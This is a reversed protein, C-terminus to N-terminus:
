SNGNQDIPILDFASKNKMVDEFERPFKSSVSLKLCHTFIAMKDVFFHIQFDLRSFKLLESPALGSTAFRSRPRRFRSVDVILYSNRSTPNNSTDM